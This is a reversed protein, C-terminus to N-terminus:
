VLASEPLVVPEVGRRRHGCMRCQNYNLEGTIGLMLVELRSPIAYPDAADYNVQYGMDQLSAVTLRSLPNVDANLFGTMLEIGLLRERWHGDRTGAGGMNEVPVPTPTQRGILTAYERMANMGIFIPNTRGANQLLRLQQWITGIGLVHGMEHIIVNELSGEAELRSLDDIDFEMNGLAPLFTNPRLFRPGAQGLIGLSGDIRTGFAEIVVNDIVENNIRVAPLDGVIIQAWRTTATEFVAQQASTLGGQFRVEINFM